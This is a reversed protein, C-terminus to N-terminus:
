FQFINNKKYKNCLFNDQLRKIRISFLIVPDFTIKANNNNIDKKTHTNTHTTDGSLINLYLRHINTKSISQLFLSYLCM